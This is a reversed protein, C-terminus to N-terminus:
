DQSLADAGAVIELIERTIAAQRTRNYTLKLQKLIEGANETAQDMALMRAGHESANSELIAKYFQIKLSKPILELLLEKKDPEFIYDTPYTSVDETDDVAIPLFQENQLVQTAANKFENYILVVKDYTGQSFARMIYEAAEKVGDFTVDTFLDSYENVLVFNRRRFFDVSKKGVPFIHLNGAAHQSQYESNIVNLAFKFTNSNFAGCLGRDSAIVVLLINEEGRELTYTSLMSEEDLGATVKKQLNSLKEAYPRLQFIMDQARRLKSAAVMKMAKTIQQTSIVSNIRNKVEKLNPM